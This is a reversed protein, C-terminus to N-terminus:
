AISAHNPHRPIAGNKAQKDIAHPGLGPPPPPVSELSVLLPDLVVSSHLTPESRHSHVTPPPHSGPREHSPPTHMGSAVLVEIGGVLELLLGLSPELLSSDDDEEDEVLAVVPIGFPQPSSSSSAGSSHSSPLLSDPSPQLASQVSPPCSTHCCLKSPSPDICSQACRTATSESSLTMTEPIVNTPILSAWPQSM